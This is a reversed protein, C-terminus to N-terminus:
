GGDEGATADGSIQLRELIVSVGWEEWWNRDDVTVNYGKRASLLTDVHTSSDFYQMVPIIETRGVLDM